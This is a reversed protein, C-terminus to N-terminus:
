SLFSGYVIRAVAHDPHAQIFDEYKQRVRAIRALIDARIEGAQRAAGSNALASERALLDDIEAAVANDLVMLASLEAEVQQDSTPLKEVIGSAKEVVQSISPANTTTAAILAARLFTGIMELLSKRCCF